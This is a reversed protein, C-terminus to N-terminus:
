MREQTSLRVALSPVWTGHSKTEVCEQLSPTPRLSRKKMPIDTPEDMPVFPLIINQLPLLFKPKPYHLLQHLFFTM